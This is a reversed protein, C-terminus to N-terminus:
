FFTSFLANKFKSICHWFLKLGMTGSLSLQIKTDTLIWVSFFQVFLWGGSKRDCSTKLYSWCVPVFVM